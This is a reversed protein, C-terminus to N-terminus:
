YTSYNTIADKDIVSVDPKIKWSIFPVVMKQRYPPVERTSMAKAQVNRNLSRNEAIIRSLAIQPKRMVM